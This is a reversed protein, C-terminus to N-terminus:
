DFDSNSNESHDEDEDSINAFKSQLYSKKAMSGEEEEGQKKKQDPNLAMKRLMIQEKLSDMHSMRRNNNNAMPDNKPEVTKQTV